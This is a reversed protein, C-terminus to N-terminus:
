YTIGAKDTVDEFDVNKGGKCKNKLLYKKGSMTSVFIDPWGDNNYDASTVGKVFDNIRAIPKKLWKPLLVM